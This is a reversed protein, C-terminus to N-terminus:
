HVPEKVEAMYWLWPQSLKDGKDLVDLTSTDM